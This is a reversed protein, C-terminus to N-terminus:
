SFIGKFLTITVTLGPMPMDVEISRTIEAIELQECYLLLTYIIGIGHYFFDISVGIDFASVFGFMEM